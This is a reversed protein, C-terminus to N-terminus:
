RVVLLKRAMTYGDTQLRYFYMGSAVGHRADTRVDWAVGHVGADYDDDVLTRVLRGTVDFIRLTVRSRQPIQFTMAAVARCPNPYSRYLYPRLVTAADPTAMGSWTQYFLCQEPAVRAMMPNEPAPPIGLPVGGGGIGLLVILDMIGPYIMPSHLM